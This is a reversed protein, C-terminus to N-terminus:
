ASKRRWQENHTQISLRHLPRQVEHSVKEFFGMKKNQIVSGGLLHGVERIVVPRTTLVRAGHVWQMQVFSDVPRDFRESAALLRRAAERGVIQMQMNLGPLRPEIFRVPGSIRVVEGKEGRKHMPLRIFEDPKVAAVTAVVVEVFDPSATEVDDEAILGVDYGGDVIAQWARRHSLFCGIEARGLAFPYRPELLHRGSVADCADQSLGRGDVAPLLDAALPLSAALTLAQQRRATARELHIVFAKAQM